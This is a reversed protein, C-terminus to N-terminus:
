FHLKLAFAVTNYRHCNLVAFLPYTSSYATISFAEFM